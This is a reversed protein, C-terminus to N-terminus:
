HIEPDLGLTGGPNMIGNPDFHKKLCRLAAMQEPGLYADMWPAAMKGIGHHHSLAGGSDAIASIIGRQFDIYSRSSEFRGIFIFYLNTGQPYFHSCHTMCITLPRSKIYGRVRDYVPILNDWTVSTELTDIILNFDNLDERIYPDSFRSQEWKRVPYGTLSMAGHGRCIKRINRYVCKSFKKEGETHGIGICRIGPKYGRATIFMDALTGDIGFQKLGIATEEADSIRLMSPMGFEGQSIDRVATIADTWGPFIFCFRKRHKPMHRFIRLTANVLVGYTGESGKFFDHIAPGTAASPFNKTKITGAPTVVNLSLVLDCADGYYSSQQGSGRAMIWGGITSYEFSQPFHGGTYRRGTDFHDPANNLLSEYAPGMMGCEVTITQNKESFDLVRNMHTQTVLIVGGKVPSLGLTVSSGGGYTTVPIRHQDCYGVIEIVDEAHRPHVVADAINVAHHRRLALAEETTKGSSYKLRSFDDANVNEDGVLAIFHALHRDSIGVPAQPPLKVPEDGQSGPQDFDADTMRLAEKLFSYLKDNPHKFGDPAGWKFISRYSGEIPTTRRWGPRHPNTKKM